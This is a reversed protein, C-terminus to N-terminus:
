TGRVAVVLLVVVVVMVLVRVLVVVSLLVLRLLDVLKRRLMGFVALLLMVLVVHGILHGGHVGEGHVGSDGM